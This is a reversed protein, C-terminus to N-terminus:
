LHPTPHRNGHLAVGGQGLLHSAVSRAPIGYPISHKDASLARYVPPVMQGSMMAAQWLHSVTKYHLIQWSVIWCLITAIGQQRPERLLLPM